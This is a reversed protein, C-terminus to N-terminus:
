GAMGPAEEGGVAVDVGMGLKATMAQGGVFVTGGAVGGEAGPALKGANRGCLSARILRL